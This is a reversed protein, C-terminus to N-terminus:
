PSLVDLAESGSLLPLDNQNYIEHLGFIRLIEVAREIQSEGIDNKWSEVLDTKLYIASDKRMLGSPEKFKKLVLPSFDEEIFSYIQKIKEQSKRCLDEYFVVLIEGKNFQKLPVYNEVCWMFIHKDFVDKCNELETKFPKLFDEMLEDQGLFDTLHTDWGLKLKSNAVACPHRLLLIIPIEPFNSKIWKLILQARIDKILRKRPFYKKNFKDIWQNRVHGSLIATAPELFTKERNNCRLYQRYNWNSVLDVYKNHFPEFMIRFDNRANIINEVWTTGSRGTGALIVTERYDGFDFLVPRKNFLKRLKRAVRIIM